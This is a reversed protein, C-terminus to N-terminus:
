FRAEGGYVQLYLRRAQAQAAALQQSDLKGCQVRQNSIDTDDVKASGSHMIVIRWACGLLVNTQQGPYPATSYGYAINRQAQYDGALAKANIQDFQSAADAATASLAAAGILLLFFARKSFVLMQDQM